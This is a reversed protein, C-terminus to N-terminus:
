MSEFLMLRLVSSREAGLAMRIGIERTRQSVTYTMVGNIGVSALVLALGGLLLALATGVLAPSTEHELNEEMTGVSALVNSDIERVLRRITGTLGAKRSNTRTVLVLDLPENPNVPLYFFPGDPESIHASRVDKAVGVIQVWLMGAGGAGYLFRKGLPNQGHWYTRAMAESIVAVADGHNMEAAT